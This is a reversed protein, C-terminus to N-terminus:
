AAFEDEDDPTYPDDILDFAEPDNFDLSVNNNDFFVKHNEFITQFMKKLDIFAQKLNKPDPPGYRLDLMIPFVLQAAKRAAKHGLPDNMDIGKSGARLARDVIAKAREPTGKVAIPDLPKEEPKAQSKLAQAATLEGKAVKKQLEGASKVDAKHKQVAKANKANLKQTPTKVAAKKKAAPKPAAKKAVKKKAM